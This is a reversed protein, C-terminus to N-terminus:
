HDGRDDHWINGRLHHFCPDTYVDDTEDYLEQPIERSPMGTKIINIWKEVGSCITKTMRVFSPFLAISPLVLIFLSIAKSASDHWPFVIHSVVLLASVIIFYSSWLVILKNRRRAKWAVLAVPDVPQAARKQLDKIKKEYDKTIEDYEENISKM